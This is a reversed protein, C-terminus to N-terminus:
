NSQVPPALVNYFSLIANSQLDYVGIEFEFAARSLNKTKSDERMLLPYRLILM